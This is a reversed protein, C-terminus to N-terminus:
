TSENAKRLYAEELERRLQAVKRAASGSLPHRDQEAIAHKLAEELGHIDKM